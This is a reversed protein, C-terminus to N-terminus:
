GLGKQGPYKRPPMVNAYVGLEHDTRENIFKGALVMGEKYTMKLPPINDMRITVYVKKNDSKEILGRILRGGVGLGRYEPSVATYGRELYGSLDLGTLTEIKNRYEEKPYKHTSTGVVEGEHEAYGILFADRLNEKVWSTGVGGCEKVLNRIRDLTKLPIEEPKEFFYIIDSKKMNQLRLAFISLQTVWKVRGQPSHDLEFVDM